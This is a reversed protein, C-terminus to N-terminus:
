DWLCVSRTRVLAQKVENKGKKLRFIDGDRERVCVVSQRGDKEVPEREKELQLNYLQGNRRAIGARIRLQGEYSQQKFYSM